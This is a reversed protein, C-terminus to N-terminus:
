AHIDEKNRRGYDCRLCRKAQRLAVAECWPQEVESFNRRRREAPITPLPERPYPAPDASPDYDTEVPLPDRWFAHEVGTLYRDIGCAGREGSAIAHVVSAPGSVADGGAFVWEVATAATRSDAHLFGAANPECELDRTLGTLDLRQGVAVIVQDAELVFTEDEMATPRRRGSRDFEGLTMHTCRIGSLEGKGDRVVEIPQTLTRLEVGELLAQDIEEAYAPMQERTRRYIVSVEAGLRVATRAADIAANGGGVVVVKRGVPASGRVNYNRLFDIACTVGPGDEGPIGMTSSDPAGVALFVAEYGDGRLDSLSFDRGLATETRIQVGMQEIMRIELALV